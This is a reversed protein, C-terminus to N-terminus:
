AGLRQEGSGARSSLSRDPLSRLRQALEGLAQKDDVVPTLRERGEGERHGKSANRLLQPGRRRVAVSRASTSSRSRVACGRTSGAEGREGHVGRVEREEVTSPAAPVGLYLRAAERALRDTPVAHM